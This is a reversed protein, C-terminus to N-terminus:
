KSNGQQRIYAKLRDPNVDKVDSKIEADDLLFKGEPIFKSASCGSLVLVVILLSVFLSIYKSVQKIM